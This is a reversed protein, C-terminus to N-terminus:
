GPVLPRSNCLTPFIRRSFLQEFCHAIRILAAAQELIRRRAASRYHGPFIPRVARHLEFGPDKQRLLDVARDCLGTLGGLWSLWHWLTTHSMQREDITGDKNEAYGLAMGEPKVVKRYSTEPEAEYRESLELITGVTYRKYPVLFEPYHTFTAGCFCCKWRKLYIVFPEVFPLRLALV